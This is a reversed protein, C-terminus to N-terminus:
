VQVPLRPLALKAPTLPEVLVVGVAVCVQVSVTSLPAPEILVHKAVTVTSLAGVHLEDKLAPLTV